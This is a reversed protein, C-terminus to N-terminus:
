IPLPERKKARTKNEGEGGRELCSTYAATGVHVVGLPSLSLSLYSIISMELQSSSSYEKVLKKANVISICFLKNLLKKKNWPSNPYQSL